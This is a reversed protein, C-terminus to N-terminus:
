STLFLSGTTKAERPKESLIICATRVTAAGIKAILVKM